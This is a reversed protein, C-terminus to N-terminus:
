PDLRRLLVGRGHLCGLVHQRPRDRERAGISVCGSQSMPHFKADAIDTIWL